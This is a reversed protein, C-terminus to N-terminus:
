TGKPNQLRNYEDVPFLTYSFTITHVNPPLTPAVTFSLPLNVTQNAPYHQEEFCFCQQLDIHSAINVGDLGGLALLTHVAVGDIGQATPNTAKFATLTPQGVRVKMTYTLPALRVPITANNQGMFRITIIRDTPGDIQKPRALEASVAVSPLPIGMVQCFVRYMPVFGYAVGLMAAAVAVLILALRLNKSM